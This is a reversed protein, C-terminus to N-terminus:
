RLILVVPLHDSTGQTYHTGLFTRRPHTGGYSKDKELLWTNDLIYCEEVRNTLSPSLFIHDLSRWEGQFRYSGLVGTTSSNRGEAKASVEIMGASELQKLAKNGTYDNFDGMIVIAANDCSDRLAMVERELIQAVALRYPETASQGGSRSPAHVVFVHLTDNQKTRGEVYLIDRTPRSDKPPQVRISRTALPTFTFPNFLLAVDIGRPDQSETMLYKYNAYRLLSGRTLLGMVSDNEVEVLGIIDPLLLKKEKTNECSQIIARAINNTKEWLRSPTWHRKADPLFEYDDKLSDHQCDFLNEVNYTVIRFSQSYTASNFLLLLLFIAYICNGGMLARSSILTKLRSNRKM